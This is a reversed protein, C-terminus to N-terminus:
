AMQEAATPARRATKRTNTLPEVRLASSVPAGLQREIGATTSLLGAAIRQLHAPTLRELPLAISIAAIARGEVGRIAVAIGAVDTRWTGCCVAYGVKRVRNLEILLDLPNDITEPTVKPLRKPLRALVAADSLAALLAVGGSLCHAPNREGVHNHVRVAQPSEAIQICVMHMGDLLGLSAGEDVTRVLEAMYPEAVRGIEVFTAKCGIEWAKVGVTYRRDLQKHLYGRDVLSGLLQHVSSKAKGVSQAIEALGLGRPAAAVCELVDLGSNIGSRSPNQMASKTNAM